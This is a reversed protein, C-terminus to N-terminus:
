KDDGNEMVKIVNECTDRMAEWVPIDQDDIVIISALCSAIKDIAEAQMMPLSGWCKYDRVARKLMQALVAEQILNGIEM